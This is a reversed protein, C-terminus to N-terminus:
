VRERCSARGIEVLTISIDELQVSAGDSNTASVFNIDPTWSSKKALLTDKTKIAAVTESPTPPLVDGGIQREDIASAQNTVTVSSFQAVDKGTPADTFAYQVFYTGVIAPHVTGIVQIADIPVAQGNSDNANLFNEEPTWSSKQAITVPATAISPSQNTNPDAATLDHKENQDGSVPEKAEAEPNNATATKMTELPQVTKQQAGNAEFSNAPPSSDKSGSAVSTIDPSARDSAVSSTATHTAPQEENATTSATVPHLSSFAVLVSFSLVVESAMMWKGRVKATKFKGHRGLLASQLQKQRSMM